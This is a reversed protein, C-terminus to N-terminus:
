WGHKKLLGFPNYSLPAFLPISWWPKLLAHVFSLVDFIINLLSKYDNITLVEAVFTVNSKRTKRCRRIRIRLIQRVYFLCMKHKETESNLIMRLSNHWSTFHMKPILLTFQIYFDNYSWCVNMLKRQKFVLTQTLM